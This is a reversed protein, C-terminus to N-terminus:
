KSDKQLFKKKLSISLLKKKIINNVNILVGDIRKSINGNM